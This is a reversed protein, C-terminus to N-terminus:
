IRQPHMNANFLALELAKQDLGVLEAALMLREKPGLFAWGPCDPNGIELSVCNGFPLVQLTNGRGDQFRAM